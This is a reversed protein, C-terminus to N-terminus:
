TFMDLITASPAVAVPPKPLGKPPPLPKYAPNHVVAVPPQVTPAQPPVIAEKPKPTPAQAKTPKASKDVKAKPTPAPPAIHSKDWCWIICRELCSVMSDGEFSEKAGSTHNYAWLLIPASDFSKCSMFNVVVDKGSAEELISWLRGLTAPDKADVTFEYPKFRPHSEIM